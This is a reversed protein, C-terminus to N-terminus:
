AQPAGCAAGQLHDIGPCDGPARKCSEQEDLTGDKWAQTEMVGRCFSGPKNGNGQTASVCPRSTTCSRVSPDGSKQCLCAVFIHHMETSGSHRRASLVAGSSLHCRAFHLPSAQSCSATAPLAWERGRQRQCSPRCTGECSYRAWFVAAGAAARCICGSEAPQALAQVPYLLVHSIAQMHAAHVHMSPLQRTRLRM